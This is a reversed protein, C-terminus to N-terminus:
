MLEQKFGTKVGELFIKPTGTRLLRVEGRSLKHIADADVSYM